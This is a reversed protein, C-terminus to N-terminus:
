RVKWGVGLLIDVQNQSSEITPGNSIVLVIANHNWHTYRVTPSLRLRGIGFDVGGGIVVGDIAGPVFSGISGNTVHPAYGGEVFPKVVPVPLRYKLLLPFEWSNGSESVGFSPSQFGWPRYLADAEFGLGLPLGIDLEPGVVYRKSVGTVFDSSFEDTVMGGGIGGIWISQGFCVCCILIGFAMLVCSRM